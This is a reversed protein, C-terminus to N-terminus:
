EHKDDEELQQLNEALQHACEQEFQSDSIPPSYIRRNSNLEGFKVIPVSFGEKIKLRSIVEDIITKYKYHHFATADVNGDLVEKLSNLFLERKTTTDLSMFMELVTIWFSYEEKGPDPPIVRENPNWGPNKFQRDGYWSFYIHNLYQIKVRRLVEILQYYSPIQYEGAVYDKWLASGEWVNMPFIVVEDVFNRFAWDITAVTNDIQDRPMMGPMGLLVNAIIGFGSFRLHWIVDHFKELDITKHLYVELHRSYSSELGMEIYIDPTIGFENPTLLKRLRGLYEMDVTEYHTELIIRSIIPVITQKNLKEFIEELYNCEKKDLISGYTGLILIIGDEKVPNRDYPLTCYRPQTHAFFDLGSEVIKWAEDAVCNRHEHGFNCMKCKPQKQCGVSPLVIQLTRDRFWTNQMGRQIMENYNM